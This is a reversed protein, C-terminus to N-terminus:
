RVTVNGYGMGRMGEATVALTNDDFVPGFMTSVGTYGYSNLSGIEGGSGDAELTTSRADVAAEPNTLIWPGGSSGGTMKCAMGWPDGSGTLGNYPDKTLTGSCFTLDNGKYKGAAPYGFASLRDTTAGGTRLGYSGVLEDLETSGKGGKGVVAVAFDHQTAQDNFGGAAAFGMHVVLRDATWCGLTTAGSCGSSQLYPASDFDPIFLWDTAFAENTEDYACHAATLVLSFGNPNSGDELVAGSCVYGGGGMRFYVKGTRRLVEGGATWSAGSTVPVGTSEPAPDTGGGGGGPKGKGGSGDPKGKPSALAFSGDAKRVFDRPIAAKMREPTWHAVIREHEARARENANDAPAAGAAAAPILAGAVLAGALLLSRSRSM